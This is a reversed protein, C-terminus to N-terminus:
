IDDMFFVMNVKWSTWEGPNPDNHIQPNPLPIGKQNLREAIDTMLKGGAIHGEWKGYVNRFYPSILGIRNKVRHSAGPIYGIEPFLAKLEAASVGSSGAIKALRYCVASSVRSDWISNWPYHFGFVAAIKTYSSNMPANGMRKGKKASEIVSLLIDHGDPDNTIRIKMGGWKLIDNAIAVKAQISQAAAIARNTQDLWAFHAAPDPYRLSPSYIEIGGSWGKAKHGTKKNRYLLQFTHQDVQDILKDIISQRTNM